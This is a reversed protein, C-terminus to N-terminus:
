IHRGRDLEGILAKAEKLDPTDFGETFSGYIPALLNLAQNPKGQDHWLRAMNMAARLEWSKARQNRAVELARYFFAEAKAFDPEPSLLTVRGAIRHVDAEFWRENSTEITTTSEGICHWARDFQGLEAHALALYSLYMPFLLTAGTSRMGTLGSTIMHIAESARGTAALTCGQLVTANVKWFFAGKEDASAVLEEYQRTATAYDRFQSRALMTISLAYMLTGAQSIERAQKVARETDAFAADPYGLMWIALSRYALTAVGVDQGFRTALPRHEALSYLAMARDFHTRGEAIEGAHLLSMGMLRHGIMLPANAGQQTAFALFQMALERVVDGKFALYNGVWIGYLASFLLLPDEPHQGLEDARKILACAREAASKTEPAAYGRVHSL